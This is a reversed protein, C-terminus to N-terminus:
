APGPLEVTIAGASNKTVAFAKYFPGECSTSTDCAPCTLGGPSAILRVSGGCDTASSCGFPTRGSLDTIKVTYNIMQIATDCSLGTEAPLFLQVTKRSEGSNAAASNIANALTQAAIKADGVKKVDQAAATSTTILLPSTVVNIYILSIVIIIIFEISVQARNNLVVAGL